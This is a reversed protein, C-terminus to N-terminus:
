HKYQTYLEYCECEENYNFVVNLVGYRFLLLPLRDFNNRDAALKLAAEIREVDTPLKKFMANDSETFICRTDIESEATAPNTYSNIAISGPVEVRQYKFAISKFTQLTQDNLQKRLYMNEAYLDQNYPEVSQGGLLKILWRKVKQFM